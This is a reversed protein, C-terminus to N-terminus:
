TDYTALCGSEFWAHVGGVCTSMTRLEEKLVDLRPFSPFSPVINSGCLHNRACSLLFQMTFTCAEEVHIGHKDSCFHQLGYSFGLM